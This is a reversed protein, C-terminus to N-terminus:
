HLSTSADVLFGSGASPTLVPMRIPLSSFDLGGVRFGSCFLNGCVLEGFATARGLGKPEDFGEADSTWSTAQVPCSRTDAALGTMLYCFLTIMILHNLTYGKTPCCTSSRLRKRFVRFCGAKDTEPRPISSRVSPEKSAAKGQEPILHSALFSAFFNFCPPQRLRQDRSKLRNKAFGFFKL